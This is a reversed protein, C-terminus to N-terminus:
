LPHLIKLLLYIFLYWGKQERRRGDLGRMSDAQHAPSSCSIQVNFLRWWAGSQTGQFYLYLYFWSIIFSTVWRADWLKVTCELGGGIHSPVFGSPQLTFSTEPTYNAVSQDPPGSISLSNRLFWRWLWNRTLIAMCVITHGAGATGMSRPDHTKGMTSPTRGQWFAVNGDKRSGEM